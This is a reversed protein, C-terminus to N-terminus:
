GNKIWYRYAELWELNKAKKDMVEIDQLPIRIKKKNKTIVGLVSTGGEDTDVDVLTAEEGFILCKLHLPLEDALTCAWGSCQEYENYCDMTAEEAMKEFKTKNQKTTKM